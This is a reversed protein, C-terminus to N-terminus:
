RASLLPRKLWSKLMRAGFKTVTQKVAWFLTGKEKGDTLNQFVELNRLVNSQLQM